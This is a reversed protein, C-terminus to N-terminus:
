REEKYSGDENLTTQDGLHYMSTGIMLLAMITFYTFPMMDTIVEKVLRFLLRM